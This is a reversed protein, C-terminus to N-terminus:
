QKGDKSETAQNAPKEASSAPTPHPCQDASKHACCCAPCSGTCPANTDKTEGARGLPTFALGAALALLLIKLSKM